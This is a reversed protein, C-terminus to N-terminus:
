HATYGGDIVLEAGTMYSSDESVLFLKAHAADPYHTLYLKLTFCNRM